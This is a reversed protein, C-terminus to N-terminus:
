SNVCKLNKDSEIDIEYGHLTGSGGLNLYLFM